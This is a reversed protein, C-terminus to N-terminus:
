LDGLVELWTSPITEFTEHNFVLYRLGRKDAERYVPVAVCLEGNLDGKKILVVKLIEESDTVHRYSGAM